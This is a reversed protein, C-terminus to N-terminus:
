RGTSNLKAVSHRLQSSLPSLGPTGKARHTVPEVVAAAAPVPDSAEEAVEGDGPMDDDIRSRDPAKVNPPPPAVGARRAAAVGAPLTTAVPRPIAGGRRSSVLPAEEAVTADPESRQPDTSDAVTEEAPFDTDRIESVLKPDSESGAGERDPPQDGLAARARAFAHSRTAEDDDYEKCRGNKSRTNGGSGYNRDKLSNAAETFAREAIRDALDNLRDDSLFRVSPQKLQKWVRQLKKEFNEDLTFIPSPGDESLDFILSNKSDRRAWLDTGKKLDLLGLPSSNPRTKSKEIKGALVAFSSKPINFEHAVYIEDGESDQRGRDDEKAWVLCYCRYSERSEVKNFEEREEEDAAESKCATATSCIPCDYAPDGGFNSSTKAKCPVSRKGIWHQAIRAFPEKAPGQPFPLIRILWAHGREIKVRAVQYTQAAHKREAELDLNTALELVSHKSM